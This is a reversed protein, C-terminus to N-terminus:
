TKQEDAITKDVISTNSYLAKAYAMALEKDAFVESRRYSSGDFKWDFKYPYCPSPYNTITVTCKM